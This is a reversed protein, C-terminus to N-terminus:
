SKNIIQKTLIGGILAGAIGSIAFNGNRTHALYLGLFLGIAAGTYIAETQEKDKKDAVIEKSSKIRDILSAM